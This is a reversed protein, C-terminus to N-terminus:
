AVGLIITFDVDTEDGTYLYTTDALLKLEEKVPESETNKRDIIVTNETSTADGTKAVTYGAKELRQKILQMKTNSNSGNLIEIKIKSKDIGSTDVTSTDVDDNIEPNIFFEDIIKATEEEDVTFIWARTISAQESQGPLHQTKLNELNFEVAYPIYDKLISFDMNTEIYENAIDIFKSIKTLNEIKLTQKALATLFARQTKMRGFDEGGYSYPYTTGDNNHRFRVVQEAKDGDLLQEGAKLHIHLDQKSSDYDMDIPVNFKVGGIADVVKRFAATDVTLYYKINLGTLENVKKLLNDVGTRYVSNIKDTALAMSKNKGIFTDRPISLLSAQQAQPDYEAIMITDTLGQSKGLLLCYIKDLSKVTNQDHGVATALFGGLGGGNQHVKYAFIAGGVLILLLLILLIKKFIGGKRKNTKKNKLTNM